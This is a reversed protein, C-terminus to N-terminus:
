LCWMFHRLVDCHCFIHVIMHINFVFLNIFAFVIILALFLCILSVSCIYRSVISTLMRTQMLISPWPFHIMICQTGSLVLETVVLVRSYRAPQKTDFDNVAMNFLKTVVLVWKYRATEKADKQENYAHGLTNVNRLVCKWSGWVLHAGKLIMCMKWKSKIKSHQILHKLVDVTSWADM